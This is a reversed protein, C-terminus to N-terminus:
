HYWLSFKKQLHLLHNKDNTIMEGADSKIINKHETSLIEKVYTAFLFRVGRCPVSYCELEDPARGFQGRYNTGREVIDCSM